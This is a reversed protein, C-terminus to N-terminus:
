KQGGISRIYALLDLMEPENIRKDFSPMIPDFGAVIQKQPYLISDRLYQEDAVVSGGGELAVTQGYLGHLRPGVIGRAGGSVDSTNHCQACGYKTFVKAGRESPSGTQAETHQWKQYDQPSLVHVWGQMEDHSTGCYETCFLHYDGPTKPEFWLYTYRGPMVDHKTRFDPIFFSHIVDESIMRLEVKDGVRLHLANIEKRGDPYYLQWMWQKGVVDIVTKPDSPMQYLDYYVRAGGGFLGISLLTPIAIWTWEVYDNSLPPNSRDVKKNGARYHVLFYIMVILVAFAFFLCVGLVMLAVFDVSAASTSAQDPFVPLDGINM